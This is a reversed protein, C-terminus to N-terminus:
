SVLYSTQSTSSPNNQPPNRSEQPICLDESGSCSKDDNTRPDALLICVEKWNLFQSKIVRFRLKTSMDWCAETESRKESVCDTESATGTQSENVLDLWDPV